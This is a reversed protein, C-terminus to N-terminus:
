GEGAVVMRGRAAGGLPHVDKDASTAAGLGAAHEADGMLVLVDAGVDHGGVVAKSMTSSPRIMAALPRIGSSQSRDVAVPQAALPLTGRGLPRAAAAGVGLVM